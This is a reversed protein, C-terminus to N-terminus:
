NLYIDNSGLKQFPTYIYILDLINGMNNRQSFVSIQSVSNLLFVVSLYERVSLQLIFSLSKSTRVLPLEMESMCFLIQVQM